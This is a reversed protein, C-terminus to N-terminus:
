HQKHTDFEMLSEDSGSTESVPQLRQKAHELAKEVVSLGQRLIRDPIDTGHVQHWEGSLQEFTKCSM